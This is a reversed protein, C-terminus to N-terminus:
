RGGRNWGGQNWGGKKQNQNWKNQTWKDQKHHTDYSGYDSWDDWHSAKGKGGKSGKGSKGGKGKGKDDRYRDEKFSAKGFQTKGRGKTDGKEGGKPKKPPTGYDERWSASRKTPTNTPKRKTRTANEDRAKSLWNDAHNIISDIAEKHTHGGNMLQCIEWYTIDWLSKIMPMDDSHIRLQEKFWSNFRIVDKEIGFKFLIQMWMVAEAGDMIMQQTNPDFDESEMAQLGWRGYSDKSLAMEFRHADDKEEKQKRKNMTGFATYTRCTLIEGLLIPTHNKAQKERAMRLMVKDAGVIMKRPFERNEGALQISEYDKVLKNFENIDFKKNDPAIPNAQGVAPPAAGTGAPTGTQKQLYARLMADYTDMIRNCKKWLAKLATEALDKDDKDEIHYNTGDVTHGTSLKNMILAATDNEDTGQCASPLVFFLLSVACSPVLPVFPVFPRPRLGYILCM